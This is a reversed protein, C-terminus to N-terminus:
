LSAAVDRIAAEAQKRTFGASSLGLTYWGCSAEGDSWVVALEGVGPDGVWVLHGEEGRVPMTPFEALDSGFPPNASRRLAVYRGNWRRNEDEFWVLLLGDDEELHEPAPVSESARWPLRSVTFAPVPCSAADITSAPSTTSPGSGAPTSCASSAIAVGLVAAAPLRSM